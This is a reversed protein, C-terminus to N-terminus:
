ACRVSLIACVLAKTVGSTSCQSSHYIALHTWWSSDIRRDVAGHASARVVSSCRAKGVGFLRLYFTNWHSPLYFMEKRIVVSKFSKQIVGIYWEVQCTTIVSRSLERLPKPMPWVGPLYQTRM